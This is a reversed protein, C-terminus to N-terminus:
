ALACNFWPCARSIRGKSNIFFAEQGKQGVKILIGV